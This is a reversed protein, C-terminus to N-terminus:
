MRMMQEMWRLRQVDVALFIAGVNPTKRETMIEIAAEIGKEPQVERLAQTVNAVELAQCM